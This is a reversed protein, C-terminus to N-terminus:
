SFLGCAQFTIRRDYNVPIAWCLNLGLAGHPISINVWCSEIAKSFSIFFADEQQLGFEIPYAQLSDLIDEIQWVTLLQRQKASRNHERCTLYCADYLWQWKFM